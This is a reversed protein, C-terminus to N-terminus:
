NTEKLAILVEHFDNPAIGKFKERLKKQALWELRQQSGSALYPSIGAEKLLEIVEGAEIVRRDAHIVSSTLYRNVTEHFSERDFTDSLTELVADEVKFLNATHFTELILAEIGKTFSSRLLKIASAGGIESSVVQVNMGFHTLIEHAYAANEGSLYVPVTFGYTKMSGMIAGDIYRGNANQIIESAQRKTNPSASSLDCYLHRPTLLSSIQWAIQISILAPLVSLIVDSRQTLEELCSVLCVNTEHARDHILEGQWNKSQNVDYAFLEYDKKSHKRIGKAFTYGVEGFGLIGLKM